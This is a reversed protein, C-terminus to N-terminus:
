SRLWEAGWDDGWVACPHVGLLEVAIRDATLYTVAGTARARSVSHGLPHDKGLRIGRADLLDLAPAASLRPFKAGM